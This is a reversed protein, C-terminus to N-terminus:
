KLLERRYRYAMYGLVVSIISVVAIAYVYPYVDCSSEPYEYIYDSSSLIASNKILTATYNDVSFIDVYVIKVGTDKSIEEAINGARSDELGKANVIFNIKGEKIEDEIKSIENPSIFNNPGELISGAVGIDLTKVVYFVGPVALLSTRNKLDFEKILVHIYNEAKRVDNLFSIYNSHFYDASNPDMESLKIYIAHSINIANSPYMWYGHVNRQIDGLSYLTVNYDEFDLSEKGKAFSKINHDVSFFESSALIILDASNIKNIDSQTLSYDHIDSGQPVIYDVSVRNRGIEKAMTSFVQLTCVVKISKGSSAAHSFNSGGIAFPILILAIILAKWKM